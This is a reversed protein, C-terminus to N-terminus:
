TPGTATPPPAGTDTCDMSVAFVESGSAQRACSAASSAAPQSMTRRATGSSAAAFASGSIRRPVFSGSTRAKVGNADVGAVDAGLILDARDRIGAPCVANGDADADVGAADRLIQERLVARRRLRQHLGGQPMYM